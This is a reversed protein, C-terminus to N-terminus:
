KRLDWALHRSPLTTTPLYVKLRRSYVKGRVADPIVDLARVVDLGLFVLAAEGMCDLVVLVEPAGSRGPLRRARQLTTRRRGRM